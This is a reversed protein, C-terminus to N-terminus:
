KERMNRVIKLIFYFALIITFIDLGIFVYLANM